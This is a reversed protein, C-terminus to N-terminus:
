DSFPILAIFRARKIAKVLVRQHKSCVHTLRRPLIRGGDSTFRKLLPIDKYNIEHAESSCFQCGQKDQFSKQMSFLMSHPGSANSRRFNNKVKKM